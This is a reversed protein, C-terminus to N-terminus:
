VLGEQKLRAFGRRTLEKLEAFLGSDMRKFNFCSKGHMRKKLRESVGELLDPYMYVPMLHFSVYNKNVEAAGFFLERQWKETYPTDLSYAIATDKKLLLRDEFPSLIEKLHDFVIVFEDSPM